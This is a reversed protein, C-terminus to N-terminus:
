RNAPDTESVREILPSADASGPEVAPGGDGGRRISAGTDLRLGSKRELAGHCAYCRGKLIPKVQRSYDVPESAPAVTAPLVVQSLLVMLGFCRYTSAMIPERGRLTEGARGDLPQQVDDAM